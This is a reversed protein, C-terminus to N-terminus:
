AWVIKYGANHTVASLCVATFLLDPTDIAALFYLLTDRVLDLGRDSCRTM